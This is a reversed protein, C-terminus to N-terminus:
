KLPTLVFYFYIGQALSWLLALATGGALIWRIVQHVPKTRGQYGILWSVWIGGLLGGGHAWNNIGPLLLGIIILGVVWGVAQRYVFNGYFDRRSKGYYIISGILGCIGASAGITFPVGFLFSIAFGSVGSLIYIILFRAERYEQLVFAGLQRLALLNFALHLLGGHLFPATLLTWWRDFITIPIVGTAGLVLLSERSPALLAFPNLTLGSPSPILILSFLFFFVNIYIILNLPNTTKMKM